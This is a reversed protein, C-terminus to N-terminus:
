KWPPETSGAMAACADCVLPGEGNLVEEVFGSVRHSAQFLAGLWIWADSDDDLHQLNSLNREFAAAVENLDQALKELGTIRDLREENKM